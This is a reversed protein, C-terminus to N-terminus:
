ETEDEQGNGADKKAENKGARRKKQPRMSPWWCLRAVVAFIVLLICGFPWDCLVLASVWSLLIISPLWRGLVYTTSLTHKKLRGVLTKPNQIAERFLEVIDDGSVDSRPTCIVRLLNNRFIGLATLLHWSHYACNLWLLNMLVMTAAVPLLYGAARAANAALANILLFINNRSVLEKTEFVIRKRVAFRIQRMRREKLSSVAIAELYAGDFLRGSKVIMSVSHAFTM